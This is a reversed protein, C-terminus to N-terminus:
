NLVYNIIQETSFPFPPQFITINICFDEFNSQQLGSIDDFSLNNLEPYFSNSLTLKQNYFFFQQVASIFFEGKFLSRIGDVNEIAFLQDVPINLIIREIILSAKLPDIDFANMSSLFSKDFFDSKFYNYLSINTKITRFYPKSM